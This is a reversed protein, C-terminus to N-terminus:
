PTITVPLLDDPIAEPAPTPPALFKADLVPVTPVRSRWVDNIVVGTAVRQEIFGALLQQQNAQLADASLPRIERGSVQVILYRTEDITPDLTLPASPRNLPLTFAAQAVQEGFNATFEERTRWLIESATVLQVGEEDPAPPNSRVANWVTLYDSAQIDALGAQAAEASAYSLLFLSAQLSTEPLDAEEALVELLRQAYIRIRIAERYAQEKVGYAGLDALLEGYQEDFATQSVPTQTPLPTSTPGLTATPLVTATPLTDTIIAPIPTLSPTPAPTQTATPQPTPLGGDFYNFFSGIEATVDEDTVVIGREVAAQRVIEEDIMRNLVAQGLGEADQLEIIAQGAFQQIIGVDGQFAELQNELSIIRQAREFRVREQFARLSIAQENVTAVARNPTIILENVVAVILVLVLILAVIAAGIRVQRLQRQQKRARLLEKRSQRREAETVESNKVKIEKKAM